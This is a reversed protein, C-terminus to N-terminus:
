QIFENFMESYFIIIKFNYDRDHFLQCLHFYILFEISYFNLFTDGTLISTSNTSASTTTTSSSTITSASKTTSSSIPTSTSTTNIGVSCNYANSCSSASFSVTIIITLFLVISFVTVLAIITKKHRNFSMRSKDGNSLDDPYVKTM